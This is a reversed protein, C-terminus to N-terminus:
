PLCGRLRTKLVDRSLDSIFQEVDGLKPLTVLESEGHEPRNSIKLVPPVDITFYQQGKKKHIIIGVLIVGTRTSLFVQRKSSKKGLHPYFSFDAGQIDEQSLLM